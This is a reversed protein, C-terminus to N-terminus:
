YFGGTCLATRGGLRKTQCPKPSIPLPLLHGPPYPTVEAGAGVCLRSLVNELGCHPPLNFLMERFGQSLATLVRSWDQAWDRGASLRRPALLLTPQPVPGSSCSDWGWPAFPLLPSPTRSRRPLPVVPVFAWPGMLLSVCTMRATRFASSPSPGHWPAPVSQLPLSSGSFPTLCSPFLM